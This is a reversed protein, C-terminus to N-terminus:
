LVCVRVCVFYGLVPARKTVRTRSTHRDARVPVPAPRSPHQCAFPQCARAFTCYSTTRQISYSIYQRATKPKRPERIAHTHRQFRESFSFQRHCTQPSKYVTPVEDCRLAALRVRTPTQSLARVRAMSRDLARHTRSVCTTCHAVADAAAVATHADAHTRSHVQTHPAGINAHSMPTPNTRRTSACECVFVSMTCGGDPARVHACAFFFLSMRGDSLLHITTHASLEIGTTTRVVRRASLERASLAFHVRSPRKRERIRHMEQGVLSKVCLFVLM